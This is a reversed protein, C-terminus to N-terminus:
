NNANPNLNIKENLVNILEHDGLKYVDPINLIKIKSNYIKSVHTEIIQKHKEEMVFILDAEKLLAEELKQSGHKECAKWNTGASKFKINPFLKSFYVEATKSRQINASCIFLINNITNPM